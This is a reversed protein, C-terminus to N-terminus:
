RRNQEAAFEDVRPPVFLPLGFKGRFRNTSALHMRGAWSFIGAKSRRQHDHVLKVSSIACVRWGNMWMRACIDVDEFYLFYGEDMGGIQEFASKRVIFGTGMVWDAEFSEQDWAAKMLHHDVRSRFVRWNGLPTRRLVIDFVSYFKRASYQPSGDPNILNVGLIGIDPERELLSIANAMRNELFYTDPNLIMAYKTRVERMGINIGSGFGDNKTSLVSRIDPFRERVVHGSGDPSNNDVMVIDRYRALGQEVLSNICTMTLEPTNYNVILYTLELDSYTKTM